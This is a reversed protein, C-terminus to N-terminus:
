LQGFLLFSVYLDCWYAVVKAFTDLVVFLISHFLDLLATMMEMPMSLLPLDM